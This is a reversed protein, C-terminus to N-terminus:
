HTEIKICKQWVALRITDLFVCKGLKSGVMNANQTPMIRAVDTAHNM